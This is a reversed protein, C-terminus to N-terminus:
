LSGGQPPGTQSGLTQSGGQPPSSRSGIAQSGQVIASRGVIFAFLWKAFELLANGATLLHPWGLWGHLFILLLGALAVGLATVRTSSRKDVTDDHLVGKPKDAPPPTQSM